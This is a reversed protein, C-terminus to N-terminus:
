RSDPIIEPYRCSSLHDFLNNTLTKYALFICQFRSFLNCSLQRSISDDFTRWKSNYSNVLAIVILAPSLLQLFTYMAKNVQATVRATCMSTTESMDTFLKM